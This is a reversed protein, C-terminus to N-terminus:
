EKAEKFDSEIEPTIKFLQEKKDSLNSTKSM